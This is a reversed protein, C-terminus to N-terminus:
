TLTAGLPSRTKRGPASETRWHRSTLANGVSNSLDVLEAEHGVSGPCHDACLRGRRRCVDLSELEAVMPCKPIEAGGNGGSTTGHATQGSCGDAGLGVSRRRTSFVAPVHTASRQDSASACSCSCPRSRSCQCLSGEGFRLLIGPTEAAAFFCCRVVDVPCRFGGRFLRSSRNPSGDARRFRQVAHHHETCDLTIQYQIPVRIRAVCKFRYEPAPRSASSTVRVLPAYYGATRREAPIHRVSERIPQRQLHLWQENPSLPPPPDYLKIRPWQRATARPNRCCWGLPCSPRRPVAARLHFPQSKPQGAVALTPCHVIVAQRGVSSNRTRPDPQISPTRHWPPHAIEQSGAKSTISIQLTGRGTRDHGPPLQAAPQPQWKVQVNTATINADAIRSPQPPQRTLQQPVPVPVLRPLLRLLVAEGM